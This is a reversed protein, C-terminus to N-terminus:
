NIQKIKSNYYHKFVRKMMPKYCFICLLTSTFWCAPSAFTMGLFGIRYVLLYTVLARTLVESIGVMMPIASVGVGILSFRVIYNIGLIIYFMSTTRMYMLGTEMIENEESDIFLQMFFRGFLFVFITLAISIAITLTLSKKVGIRIRELEGKGYNQAAFTSIATGFAGLIQYVLTDMKSAATYAAIDNSGLSNLAAQLILFSIALLSSFFAMPIGTHLHQIIITKDLKWDSTIFHTESVDKKMYIYCLIASIIQSFVTAVAVGAVGMNFVLVFILDLVVNLISTLILFFLPIISNGFARLVAAEYNYAAAAATGAFTIVSYLIADDILEKPTNILEFLTRCCIIGVSTILITLIVILIVGNTIAKKTKEKNDSGFHQAIVVSMGSTMGIMLGLLLQVVPSTTGVAALALSGVGRGVVATDVMSYMQQFLNGIMIPLAFSVIVKSINGTTMNISSSNLKEKLKSKLFM